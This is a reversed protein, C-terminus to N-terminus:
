SAETTKTMVTTRSWRKGSKINVYPNTTIKFLSADYLPLVRSNPDRRSPEVGEAEALYLLNTYHYCTVSQIDFRHNSDEM